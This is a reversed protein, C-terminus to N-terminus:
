AATAAPSKADTFSAPLYPALADFGQGPNILIQDPFNYGPRQKAMFAPRPSLNLARQGSGRGKAKYDDKKGFAKTEKAITTIQNLFGLVDCHERILPETRKNAFRMAYRDYSDTTPDSFPQVTEHGIQVICMGKNDRLWTIAALYERWVADAEVYGKGFGPDEISQWNNRKCTEAWIMPELRTVSDVVLTRFPHDESALETLAADVDQFSTMPGDTFSTVGLGNAGDETQIFIPNPFESALTTKGMGGTGYICMIPVKPADKRVLNQLSIAM